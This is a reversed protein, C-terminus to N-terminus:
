DRTSQKSSKFQSVTLGAQDDASLDRIIDRLEKRRQEQEVIRREMERQYLAILAQYFLTDRRLTDENYKRVHWQYGRLSALDDDSLHEMQESDLWSLDDPDYEPSIHM